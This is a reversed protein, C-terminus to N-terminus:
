CPSLVDEVTSLLGLNRVRGGGGIGLKAAGPLRWGQQAKWPDGESVGYKREPIRRSAGQAM